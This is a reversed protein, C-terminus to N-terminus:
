RPTPMGIVEPRLQRFLEDVAQVNTRICHFQDYLTPPYREGAARSALLAAEKMRNRINQLIEDQTM